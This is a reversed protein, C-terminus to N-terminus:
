FCIDLLHKITIANSCTDDTLHCSPLVATTNVHMKPNKNFLFFATINMVYTMFKLALVPWDEQLHCGQLILAYSYFPFPAWLQSRPFPTLVVTIPSAFDTHWLLLICEATCVIILCVLIFLCSNGLTVQFGKGPTANLKSARALMRRISGWKM